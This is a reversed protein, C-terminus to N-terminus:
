ESRNEAEESRIGIELCEMLVLGKQGDLETKCNTAIELSFEIV